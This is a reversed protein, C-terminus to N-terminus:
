TFLVLYLGMVAIFNIFDHKRNAFNLVLSIASILINVKGLVSIAAISSAIMLIQQSFIMTQQTIYKKKVCTQLFFECVFSTNLLCWYLRFYHDNCININAITVTINLGHLLFHKYFLYQYKKLRYLIRILNSSKPDVKNYNDSFKNVPFLHRILWPSVSVIALSCRVYLSCHIGSVIHFVAIQVLNLGQYFSHEIMESGSVTAHADLTGSGFNVIHKHPFDAVASLPLLVGSLGLIADLFVRFLYLSKPRPISTKLDFIVDSFSVLLLILHILGHIAHKWKTKFFM